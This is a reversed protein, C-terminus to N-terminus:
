PSFFFLEFSTGIGFSEMALDAAEIRMREAFRKTETDDMDGPNRADVFPRIRDRLKNALTKIRERKENTREEDYLQM